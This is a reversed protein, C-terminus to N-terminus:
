EAMYYIPSHREDYVYKEAPIFWFNKLKHDLVVQRFKETVMYDVPSNRPKFIDDGEWSGEELFIGKQKRYSVGSRCYSCKIQEPKEHTLGSKKDDQSAKGWLISFDYYRPLALGTFDGTKRKGVKVINVERFETVGSLGETEYLRKFRESVVMTFGAGWIFDGWRDEKASSLYIDLPPLWYGGSVYAGCKPCAQPDSFEANITEGYAWKTGFLDGNEPEFIYFASM